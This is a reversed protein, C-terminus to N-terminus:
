KTARIRMSHILGSFEKTVQNGVLPVIGGNISVVGGKVNEGNDFNVQLMIKTNVESGDVPITKTIQAIGKSDDEGCGVLVALVLLWIGISTPCKRM